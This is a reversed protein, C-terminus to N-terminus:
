AFNPMEEKSDPPLHFYGSLSKYFFLNEIVILRFFAKM